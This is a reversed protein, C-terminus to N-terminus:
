RGWLWTLGVKTKLESMGTNDVNVVTASNNTGGTEFTVTRGLYALGFDVALGQWVPWEFQTDIYYASNSKAKNGNVSGLGGTGILYGLRAELTLSRMVPTMITVIPGASIDTLSQMELTSTADPTPATTVSLSRFGMVPMQDYAVDVGPCYQTAGSNFCYNGRLTGTYIAKNSDNGAFSLTGTSGKNYNSTATYSEAEAEVQWRSGSYRYKLNAGMNDISKYTMSGNQSFTGNNQVTEPAISIRHHPRIMVPLGNDVSSVSQGQGDAAAGGTAQANKMFASDNRRYIELEKELERSKVKAKDVAVSADYKVLEAANASNDLEDSLKVVKAEIENFLDSKAKNIDSISATKKIENLKKFSPAEPDVMFIREYGARSKLTIYAAVQAEDIFNSIDGSTMKRKTDKESWLCTLRGGPDRITCYVEAPDAHASPSLGTISIVGVLAALLPRVLHRNMM